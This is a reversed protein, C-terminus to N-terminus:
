GQPIQHLDNLRHHVYRPLIFSFSEKLRDARHKIISCSLRTHRTDKSERHAVCSGLGLTDQTDQGKYNFTLYHLDDM